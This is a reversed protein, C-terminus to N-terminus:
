SNYEIEIKRTEQAKTALDMAKWIVEELIKEPKENKYLTGTFDIGGVGIAIEVNLNEGKYMIDMNDLVNKFRYTAQHAGEENCIIVSFIIHSQHLFQGEGKRAANEIIFSVQKLVTKYGDYGIEELLQIDNIIKFGMLGVAGRSRRLNAIQATVTTIFDKPESILLYDKYIERVNDIRRKFIIVSFLNYIFIWVSRSGYSYILTFFLINWIIKRNYLFRMTEAIVPAQVVIDKKIGQMYNQMLSPTILILYMFVLTSIVFFIYDLSVFYFKREIRKLHFSILFYIVPISLIVNIYFLISFNKLVYLGSSKISLDAYKGIILFIIDIFTMEILSFILATIIALLTFYVGLRVKIIKTTM